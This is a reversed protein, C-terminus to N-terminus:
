RLGRPARAAREARGPHDVPRLLWAVLATTVVLGIGLRVWGAGTMGTRLGQWMASAAVLPGITAVALTLRLWTPLEEHLSRRPRRWWRPDAASGAGTM